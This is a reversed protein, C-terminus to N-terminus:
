QGDEENWVALVNTDSDILHDYDFIDMTGVLEEAQAATDADVYTVVILTVLEKVAFRPM